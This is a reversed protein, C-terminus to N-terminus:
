VTETVQGVELTVDVGAAQGVQVTLNERVFQKFGEASVTLKYVGPRVFPITYTGAAETTATLTENTAVNVAQVKANPVASGSSDFVHGSITARFEQASLGAVLIFLVAFVALVKTRM